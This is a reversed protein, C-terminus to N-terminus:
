DRGEVKEYHGIDAIKCVGWEGKKFKKKVHSKGWSLLM